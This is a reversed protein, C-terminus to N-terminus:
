SQSDKNYDALSCTPHTHTYQIIMQKWLKIPQWLLPASMCENVLPMRDLSQDENNDNNNINNYMIIHKKLVSLIWHSHDTQATTELICKSDCKLNTLFIPKCSDKENWTEKFLLFMCWVPSLKFFFVYKIQQDLCLNKQVFNSYLHCFKDFQINLIGM